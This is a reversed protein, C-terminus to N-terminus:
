VLVWRYPNIADEQRRTLGEHFKTQNLGQKGVNCSLYSRGEGSETSAASSAGSPGGALYDWKRYNSHSQALDPSDKMVRM